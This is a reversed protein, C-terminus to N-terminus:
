NGAHEDKIFMTLIDLMEMYDFWQLATRAGKMYAIITEM